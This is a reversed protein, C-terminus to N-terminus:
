KSIEEMSGSLIVIGSQSEMASITVCVRANRKFPQEYRAPNPNEDEVREQVVVPGANVLVTHRIVAFQAPLRTVKDRYKIVEMKGGYYAGLIVFDGNAFKQMAQTESLM